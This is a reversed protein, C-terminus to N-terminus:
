AASSKDFVPRDILSIFKDRAEPGAKNWASMLAAVQKEVSEFENLPADALKVPRPESHAAKADRVTKANGTLVANVAERQVRIGM